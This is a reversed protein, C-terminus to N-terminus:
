SGAGGTCPCYRHWVWGITTPDETIDVDLQRGAYILRNGSEQAGLTRCFICLSSATCGPRQSSFGWAVSGVAGRCVGLCGGVCLRLELNRHAGVWIGRELTSEQPPSTSYLLQTHLHPTGPAHAQPRILKNHAQLAACMSARWRGLEMVMSGPAHVCPCAAAM